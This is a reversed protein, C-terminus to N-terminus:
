AGMQRRAWSDFARAGLVQIRVGTNKEVGLAMGSDWLDRDDSVVVPARMELALMAVHKDTESPSKGKRISYMSDIEPVVRGTVRRIEVADFQWPV